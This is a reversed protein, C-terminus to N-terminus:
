SEQDDDSQGSSDTTPEESPHVLSEIFHRNLIAWLAIPTVAPLILYGFQYALAVPDPSIGAATVANAGPIGSDFALVKLTEAVVGLAQAIWMVSLAIAFQLLRRRITMPTAMVLGSFLPLSYGFLLPNQILVLEGIGSRGDPAVQNVLIRTTVEMSHGNQVIESILSPWLTTMSLKVMQIVPWTLPSAFTFWIFFSLPLWLVARLGIARIESADM